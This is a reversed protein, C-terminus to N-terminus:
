NLVSFGNIKNIKFVRDFINEEFNQHHILMVNMNLKRKINHLLEIVKSVNEVSLTILCEDLCMVNLEGYQLKLITILSFLLALELKKTEGSSLTRIDIEIGNRIIVFDLSEDFILSFDDADLMSLFYSIHKNLVPTLTKFIKSKFGDESLIEETINSIRLERNKNNLEKDINELEYINSKIDNEAMELMKPTYQNNDDIKDKINSLESNYKKLEEKLNDITIFIESIQNKYKDDISKIESNNKNIEETINNLEKQNKNIEKDIKEKEKQYKEILEKLEAHKEKKINLTAEAVNINNTKTKINNSLDNIEKELERINTDDTITNLSKIKKKIKNVTEKAQNLKDNNKNIISNLEELEKQIDQHLHKHEETNLDTKCTPCKGKKYLENQEELVEKKTINSAIKTEIKNIASNFEDLKDNYTIKDKERKNETEVYNTKAENLQKNLETIKANKEVICLQNEKIEQKYNDIEKELNELEASEYQTIKSKNNKINTELIVKKLNLEHNKNNIIDIESKLKDNLDNITTENNKINNTINSINEELKQKSSMYEKLLTQNEKVKTELKEFQSKKDSLKDNAYNLKTDLVLKEKKIELNNKHERKYLENLLSLNFINVIREKREKNNITFFNQYKTINILIINTFIDFPIEIYEMLLDQMNSKGAVDDVKKDDIYIEFVSPKLGRRILIKKNKAFLELEVLMEKNNYNILDSNNKGTIKGYLCYTIATFITSKGAGNNGVILDLSSQNFEITTPNNGYSQFNKITLKNLKM